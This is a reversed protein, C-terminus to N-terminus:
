RFCFHSHLFTAFVLGLMIKLLRDWASKELNVIPTWKRAQAAKKGSIRQVAESWAVRKQRKSKEYQKPGGPFWAKSEYVKRLATIRDIFLLPKQIQINDWAGMEMMDVIYESYPGPLWYTHSPWEQWIDVTTMQLAKAKQICIKAADKSHGGGYVYAPGEQL